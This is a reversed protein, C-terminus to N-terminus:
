FERTRPLNASILPEGLVGASNGMFSGRRTVSNLVSNLRLRSNSVALPRTAGERLGWMGGM